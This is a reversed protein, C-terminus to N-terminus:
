YAEKPLFSMVVGAVDECLVDALVNWKAIQYDIKARKVIEFEYSRVLNSYKSIKSHLGNIEEKTVKIKGKAEKTKLFEAKKMILKRTEEQKQKLLAIRTIMEDITNTEAKLKM